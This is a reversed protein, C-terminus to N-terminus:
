EISLVFWCSFYDVHAIDLRLTALVALLPSPVPSTHFPNFLDLIWYYPRYAFPIWQLHFQFASYGLAYFGLISSDTLAQLFLSLFPSYAQASLIILGEQPFLINLGCWQLPSPFVASELPFLLSTWVTNGPCIFTGSSSRMAYDALRSSHLSCRRWTRHSISPLAVWPVLRLPHLSISRM